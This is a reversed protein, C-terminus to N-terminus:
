GECFLLFPARDETRINTRAGREEYLQSERTGATSINFSIRLYLRSAHIEAGEGGAQSRFPAAILTSSADFGFDVDIQITERRLFAADTQGVLLVALLHESGNRKGHSICPRQGNCETGALVRFNM